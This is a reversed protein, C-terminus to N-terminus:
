GWHASRQWKEVGLMEVFAALRNAIQEESFSRSDNHDAELLLAPTDHDKLLRDRQDMQGISYPKCSRDSHLIVGDLDFREIMERMTELKYRTGRNLIPYTYARAMADMGGDPDIMPALEGWANTYTSAVLAIGHEGLFEALYRLRYWVPLNDWLLRKRENKVAGIGQRIRQDVEELMAAYFDVTEPDGRMEVIPAMQIFQDIVSIPAPRHANRGMIELWLESAMKSLRATTRLRREELSKGAVREAVSIAEELQRMVYDLAHASAEKYYVFPTDIVILPVHFHRALVRYWFLVTQCINTCAVLLDPKPLRGVPTKGSLLTGFDTRAYSCIDRSYGANEAECSLEVAVRATGCIAAHNEPYLVYYDLAKFIEVPAGSTVWAVKHRLNAYRGELWHRGVLEKNKFSIKLPPALTEANWRSGRKDRSESM